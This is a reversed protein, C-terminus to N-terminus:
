ELSPVCLINGLALHARGKPGIFSLPSYSSSLM